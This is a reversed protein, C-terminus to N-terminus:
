RPLLRLLEVVQRQANKVLDSLAESAKPVITDQFKRQPDIDKRWQEYSEMRLKIYRELSGRLCSRIDYMDFLELLRARTIYDRWGEDNDWTGTRDFFERVKAQAALFLIYRLAAKHVQNVFIAVVDRDQERAYIGIERAKM